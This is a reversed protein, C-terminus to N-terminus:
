GVPVDTFAEFGNAAAVLEAPSSPEVQGVVPVPGPTTEARELKWDDYARRLTLTSTAWLAQPPLSADNGAVVVAWLRVRAWDPERYSDLRYGLYAITLVSAVDKQGLGVGFPGAGVAAALGQQTTELEALSGPAAMATLARDRRASDSLFWKASLVKGYAAAAAIAGQRTPAWGAPIGDVWHAPGIGGSIRASDTAPTPPDVVLLARRPSSPPRGAWIVAVVAAAVLTEAAAMRLRRRVVQRRAATREARNPIPTSM